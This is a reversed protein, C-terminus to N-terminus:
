RELSLPLDMGAPGNWIDLSIHEAVRAYAETLQGLSGFARCAYEKPHKLNEPSPHAHQKDGGAMEVANADAIMWADFAEVAYSIACPYQDSKCAEDRGSRLPLITETKTRGDRDIIFILTDYKDLRAKIIASFAQKFYKSSIYKQIPLGSKERIGHRSHISSSKHCVFEIDLNGLLRHVIKPLAPLKKNDLPEGWRSGLENEGDAYVMVRFRKM